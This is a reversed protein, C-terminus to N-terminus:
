VHKDSSYFGTNNYISLSSDLFNVRFWNNQQQKVKTQNRIKLSLLLWKTMGQGNASKKLKCKVTAISSNLSYSLFKNKAVRM